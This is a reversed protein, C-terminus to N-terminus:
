YYKKNGPLVVDELFSIGMEECTTKFSNAVSPSYGESAELCFDYYPKPMFADNRLANVQAQPKAMFTYFKTSRKDNHFLPEVSSSVDVLDYMAERAKLLEVKDYDVNFVPLVMEGEGPTIDFYCPCFVPALPIDNQEYPYVWFKESRANNLGSSALSRTFNRLTVLFYDLPETCFTEMVKRNMLSGYAIIQM